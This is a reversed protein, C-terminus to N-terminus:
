FFRKSFNSWCSEALQFFRTPSNKQFRQFRFRYTHFRFSNAFIGSGCGQNKCMKNDFFLMCHNCDSHVIGFYKRLLLTNLFPPHCQAMGGKQSQRKTFFVFNITGLSQFIGSENSPKRLNLGPVSGPTLILPLGICGEM